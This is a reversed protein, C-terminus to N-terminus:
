RAFTLLLLTAVCLTIIGLWFTKPNPNQAAIAIKDTWDMLPKPNLSTILTTALTWWAAANTPRFSVRLVARGLDNVLWDLLTLALLSIAYGLCGLTCISAYSVTLVAQLWDSSSPKM